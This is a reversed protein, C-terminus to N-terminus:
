KQRAFISLYRERARGYRTLTETMTRKRENPHHTDYTARWPQSLATEDTMAAFIRGIVYRV